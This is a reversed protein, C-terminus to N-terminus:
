EVGFLEKLIISKGFNEEKEKLIKTCKELNEKELNVVQFKRKQISKIEYNTKLFFIGGLIFIFISFLICLIFTKKLLFEFFKEIRM